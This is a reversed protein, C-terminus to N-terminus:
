CSYSSNFIIYVRNLDFSIENPVFTASEQQITHQKQKRLKKNLRAKAQRSPKRAKLSEPIQEM